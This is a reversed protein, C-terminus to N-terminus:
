VKHFLSIISIFLALISLMISISFKNRTEQFKIYNLYCRVASIEKDGIHGPHHPPFNAIYSLVDVPIENSYLKKLFKDIREDPSSSDLRLNELNEITDLYEKHNECKLKPLNSFINKFNCM